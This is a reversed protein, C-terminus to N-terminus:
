QRNERGLFRDSKPCLYFLIAIAFDALNNRVESWGEEIIGMAALPAVSVQAMFTVDPVAFDEHIIM